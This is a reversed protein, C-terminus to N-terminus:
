LGRGAAVRKDGFASAGNLYNLAVKLPEDSLKETVAWSKLNQPLQRPAPAKSVAQENKFHHKLDKERTM